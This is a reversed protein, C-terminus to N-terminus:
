YKRVGRESLDLRFGRVLRVLTYPAAKDAHPALLAESAEHTAIADVAQADDGITSDLECGIFLELLYPKVDGINM